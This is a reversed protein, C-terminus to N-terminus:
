RGSLVWIASERSGNSPHAIGEKGRQFFSQLFKPNTLNTYKMANKIAIKPSETQVVVSFGLQVMDAAM